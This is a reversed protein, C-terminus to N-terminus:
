ITQSQRMVDNESLPDIIKQLSYCKSNYITDFWM